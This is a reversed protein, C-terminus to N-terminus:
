SPVPRVMAVPSGSLLSAPYNESSISRRAFINKISRKKWLGSVCIQSFCPFILISSISLSLILLLLAIMLSSGFLACGVYILALLVNLGYAKVFLRKARATMVLPKKQPPRKYKLFLMWYILAAVLMILSFHVIQPRPMLLLLLVPILTLYDRKLLQHGKQVKFWSRFRDNMYSNLQMMHLYYREKKYMYALFGSMAALISGFLLVLYFIIHELM